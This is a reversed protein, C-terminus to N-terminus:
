RGMDGWVEGGRSWAQRSWVKLVRMQGLGHPIYVGEEIAEWRWDSIVFTDADCNSTLYTSSSSLNTKEHVVSPASANLRRKWCGREISASLSPNGAWCQTPADEYEEECLTCKGFVPDQESPLSFLRKLLTRLTLSIPDWFLSRRWQEAGGEMLQRTQELSLSM